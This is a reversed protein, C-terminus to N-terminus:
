LARLDPRSASAAQQLRDLERKQLGSVAETLDAIDKRFGNKGDPGVCFAHVDAVRMEVTDLRRDVSKFGENIASTLTSQLNNINSSANRDRGQGKRHDLWKSIVMAVTTIAGVLGAGLLEPNETM